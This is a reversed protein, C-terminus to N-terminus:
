ISDIAKRKAWSEKSRRSAYTKKEPTNWIKKRIRSANEKNTPDDWYKKSKLSQEQRRNPERWLKELGSIVNKRYMPDQWMKRTAERHTEKFEETHQVNRCIKRLHIKEQEPRDQGDRSKHGKKFDYKGKNDLRAKILMETANYEKNYRQRLKKIYLAELPQSNCFGWKKKYESFTLGHMKVHPPTIKKMWKGCEECKIEDETIEPIGFM